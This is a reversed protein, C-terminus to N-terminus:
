VSSEVMNSLALTEEVREKSEKEIETDDDKISSKESITDLQDTTEGLKTVGMETVNDEDVYNHLLNIHM